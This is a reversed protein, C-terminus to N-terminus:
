SKTNPLPALEMSSYQTNTTQNYIPHNIPVQHNGSSQTTTTQPIQPYSSSQTETQNIYGINARNLVHAPLGQVTGRVLVSESDKKNINDLYKHSKPQSSHCAGMIKKKSTKKTLFTNLKKLNSKKKNGM